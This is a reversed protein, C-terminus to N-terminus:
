NSQVMPHGSIQDFIIRPKDTIPTKPHSYCKFGIFCMARGLTPPGCGILQLGTYFWFSQDQGLCSLIGGEQSDKFQSKLKKRGKSELQFILKEQTLEAVMKVPIIGRARRTTWSASEGQLDGSM